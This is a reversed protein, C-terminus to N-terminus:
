FGRLRGGLAPQCEIFVINEPYGCGHTQHRRQHGQQWQEGQGGQGGCRGVGFDQTDLAVSVVVLGARQAPGDFGTVLVGAVVADVDGGDALRGVNDAGATRQRADLARHADGAQRPCAIALVDGDVTRAVDLILAHM